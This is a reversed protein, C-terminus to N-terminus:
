PGPAIGVQMHYMTEPNDKVYLVGPYDVQIDGVTFMTPETIYAPASPVAFAVWTDSTIDSKVAMGDPGTKLTSLKGTDYEYVYITVNSIASEDVGKTGDANNDSYTYVEITTPSSHVLGYGPIYTGIREWGNPEIGWVAYSAETSDGAANLEIKGLAGRYEETVLPIQRKIEDFGAGNANEMALGIVWVTDYSSYAYANPTGVIRPDMSLRMSLDNYVEGTTDADFICSRFNANTLFEFVKPNNVLAPSQINADSGTWSVTHLIPHDAAKEMFAETEGAGVYLVSVKNNGRADVHKQVKEALQQTMEEFTSDYCGDGECLQYSGLDDIIGGLEEFREVTSDHLGNGFPDDKWVSILVEKGALNHLEAIVPGHLTDDPAFRFINDGELSMTPATSCCSIVLMNNSDAYDKISGVTGSSSPGTVMNIGKENFSVMHSPVAESSTSDRVDAALRWPANKNALYENFDDIGYETAIHRHVGAGDERNIPVLVGVEIIVVWQDGDVKWTAYQGKTRDGNMDLVTNGSAGVYQSSVQILADKVANVDTSQADLISLGILWVVDYEYNTYVSPQRYFDTNAAFHERIQQTKISDQTTPQVATLSVRNAFAKATADDLVNPRVTNLEAGYWRVDDLIEHQSAMKIFEVNREFGTFLVAVKDGDTSNLQERVSAALQEATVALDDSYNIRPVASNATDINTFSISTLDLLDNIWTVDLGVPVIVDIGDEDMIEALREAHHEHGPAIRFMLDDHALQTTVSCCSVLLMENDRAFELVQSDYDIAHGDVIKIGAANLTSLKEKAVTPNTETDHRDVSLSWSAGIKELHENFHIAALKSAESIETGYSSAGGTTPALAGITIVGSLSDTDEALHRLHDPEFPYTSDDFGKVIMEDRVGGLAAEVEIPNWVTQGRRDLISGDAIELATDATIVFPYTDEEVNLTTIIEFAGDGHEDYLALANNTSTIADDAQLYHETVHAHSTYYGSGFIYGDHLELLGYKPEVLGTAPNVFEYIITATGRADLEALVGDLSRNAEILDDINSGVLAPNAGHAVINWDKDSVFPYDETTSEIGTIAAFADTTGMQNYTAIAKAITWEAGISQAEEGELYFGSGFIYNDRQVVWSMKSQDKGTAPNLFSYTIWAGKGAALEDRVGGLAAEVEIPNWVTQGRRDLISGDAIELATDATIVFPYTDEEVNLTTIIEFAGDGHEDYLALANNTSTIADDAQLYHETVHAHSTYYGSGFIYGDHLELLGYKPEVLGTAPNVFEYIITATGRADLEALVGDLSRNAEILDDINSGVLAPNAGHAVINWDKDSVFPYDETTSEIGTIAAFADTTGMQNYTAIAKAITWEAGISQAEEGELYFGSGFIYNDRQVVWSMKSQDKGTAPNLFSYTIWAGDSLREYSDIYFPGNSIMANGKDAIWKISAQYREDVDTPQVYLGAPVTGDSAYGELITKILDAHDREMLSLWPVNNSKAESNSFAANGNGVIEEMAAYIEWPINSWLGAHSAIEASDSHWYNIYVDITDDDVVHLGQLIKIASDALEKSYKKDGEGDNSSWEAQFYAPYMIDNIDIPVGNHWNSLELDITVKSTAKADPEVRDWQQSTSNWRVADDSMEIKGDPGMTEVKWSNRVPLWEGTFPDRNISPDRVISMIDSSYADVIGGVPNIASQMIYKVGITVDEDYSSVNILTARNTIGYGQANVVGMVGDDVVYRDGESVLFIRVAEQVGEITAQRILNAREEANTYDGKALRLTLNDIYSNEYNWYNPNNQGPMSSAWPAYMQGISSDDYKIIPLGSFASTYIHWELQAPDTAFVMDFADQLSGTMVDVVFGLKELEAVLNHGIRDRVPDDTRIFIKVVIPEDDVLWTGNVKMAGEAQLVKSIMMDARQPDYSIGLADLQDNVLLYNKSRPEVSSIMAIGRGDLITSVIDDRDVLFNLSYRVERYAFPNFQETNDAPNVYLDHTTSGVSDYMRVGDPPSEGIQDAPISYYYIDFMDNQLAKLATTEDSHQVFTISRDTETQAYTPPNQVYEAVGTLLGMAVAVGALLLTM